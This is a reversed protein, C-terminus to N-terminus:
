HFIIGEEGTITKIQSNKVQFFIYKPYYYEGYENNYYKLCHIYIIYEQNPEFKYFRVNRESTQTKVNFVEFITLNSFGPESYDYPDPIYPPSERPYFPYYYETSHHNNEIISFYVIKEENLNNVKFKKM